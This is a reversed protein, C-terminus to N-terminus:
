PAPPTLGGGDEREIVLRFEPQALPAAAMVTNGLCLLVKDGSILFRFLGDTRQAKPVLADAAGQDTIKLGHGKFSIKM